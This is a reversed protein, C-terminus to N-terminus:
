ASSRKGNWWLYEYDYSESGEEEELDLHYKHVLLLITYLSHEESYAIEGPSRTGYMKYLLRICMTFPFLLATIVTELLNFESSCKRKWAIDVKDDDLREPKEPKEPVEFMKPDCGLQKYWMCLNRLEQDDNILLACLELRRKIMEENFQRRYGRYGHYGDGKFCPLRTGGVGM